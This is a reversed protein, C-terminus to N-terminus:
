EETREVLEPPLSVNVTENVTEAINEMGEIINENPKIDEAFFIGEPTLKDIVALGIHERFQERKDITFLVHPVEIQNALKVAAYWGDYRPGHKPNKSNFYHSPEDDLNAKSVSINDIIYRVSQGDETLVFGDINGGWEYGHRRLVRDFVTKSIRAEGGNDLQRTQVTQKIEGWWEVFGNEDLKKDIRLHVRGERESVSIIRYFENIYCILYLPIGAERALIYRAHLERETFPVKTKDDGEEYEIAEVAATFEHQENMLLGQLSYAQFKEFLRTQFVHTNESTRVKM